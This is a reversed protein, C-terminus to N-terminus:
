GTLVCIPGPQRLRISAREHTVRPHSSSINRPRKSPRRSSRTAFLTQYFAAATDPDGTILSSWIWAGPEALLDPPGGSSSALLAFVAGQPDALVAEVGRDPFSRPGFLLKAGHAVATQTTANTDRVAFYTLWASQRHESAPLSRQFLGGVSLDAVTAEAYPMGDVDFDRFTWGLLGGYFQKARTLDPTVLEQFIIKGVLYDQTPPSIIPPFQAAAAPVASAGLLLAGLLERRFLQHPRSSQHM